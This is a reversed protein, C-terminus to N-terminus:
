RMLNIHGEKSLEQNLWSTARVKYVYIDNNQLMGKYHGNWGESLESTEFVLEGWRNYIQFSLLDKIGWGKVYIIDNTGDGNPTFTTPLEIFTEPRIHINFYYMANSCGFIDEAYLSYSKDKLPQVSPNSCDLCSLGDEPSWTFKVSGNLNSIPLYVIDGVVITTDFTFGVLPPVVYLYADDSNTCGNTDVVTVTYFGSNLSSTITPNYTTPNNLEISPTWSYTYNNLPNYNEVSFYASDFKCVSDGIATVVPFPVIKVIKSITDKCGLTSNQAALTITYTGPTTYNKTFSSSSTSNTGDGLNWSFINGTAPSSTNTLLLSENLCLLTDLDATNRTFDAKVYHIFVTKQVTVPCVNDVGYITLKAVTQGSPPLFNYVHGVSSTDSISSGDGFDWSYTAVELTDKITFTIEEGKCISNKNMDFNGQPGIVKLIKTITDKCGFSTSVVLTVTHNGKPFVLSLGSATSTAAGWDWFTTIPSTTTSTNTFVVQQPNCLVPLSDVDTTYKAIPYDQINVTKTTTGTCGTINETYTLTITKTGSSTYTHNLNNGTGFNGDGYNWNFTLNSTQSVTPSANLNVSQGLCFNSPLTTITSAPAYVNIPINLTGQCGLANTILLSTVLTSGPSSTYTHVPNPLTSTGGDGFTWSWNTITTDSVSFDTFSITDPLCINLDSVTYTPTITYVEITKTLTDHCGNIDEVILGITQGGKQTFSIDETPSNSNIPRKNPDSFTWVYNRYCSPGVDISASADYSYDTGSCLLSDTTFNAKVNRIHILATDKSPACGSSSNVATLVINYDGSALYTHTFTGTASSTNGDGFDWSLSTADGSSDILQVDYPTDCSKFYNFDAIPGKVTVLNTKTVTSYCGNYDATLTITQPGTKNNFIHSPSDDTFCHSLLEKNTSYHWGDIGTTDTTLNTFKVTEGPCISVKDVGFDLTKPGGVEIRVTYSTDKCGLSNTIILLVDYEGPTTFTHTHPGKNAMSNNPTGDDYNWLWNAIPEKSRSSDNFTVTLPACGKTVDPIFRAWPLHITIPLSYSATCGAATTITVSVPVTNPGIEVDNSDDIALDHTFSPNQLTSGFSWNWNAVTNPSSGTYQVTVPVYCSYAPVATFTVSPNEVFVVITTDDSCGGSTTTLKISQFGAASFRILPEFSNTNFPAIFSGNPGLNWISTGTTSLNDIIVTANICVTDPISFSSVPKGISIVRQSSRACNNTDTATLTVTYSGNVTYTQAAPPNLTNYTTGNGMNWVHTLPLLSTTTNTFSVTLPVTCSTAPNPNTTFATVPPTSCSIHDPFIKTIDCSPSSTKLEISVSYVGPNNYVHNVPTGTGGNGDGFTWNYANLTIGGPLVTNGSLNVNLPACGKAPTATLQPDPKPYIKITITGVIPGTPTQRFEVVYTGPTTFTNGPNQLNSTAGDKFDWFWTTPGTPATFKVVAPACGETIDSTQANILTSLCIAAVIFIVKKIRM